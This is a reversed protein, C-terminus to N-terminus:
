EQDDQALCCLRHKIHWLAYLADSLPPSALRRVTPRIFAAMDPKRRSGVQFRKDRM